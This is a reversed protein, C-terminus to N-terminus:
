KSINKLFKSSAKSMKDKMVQKVTPEKSTVELLSTLEQTDDAEIASIIADPNDYNANVFKTLEGKIFLSLFSRETYTNKGIRILPIKNKKCFSTVSRVDDYGFLPLMEHIEVLRYDIKELASYLQKNRSTHSSNM